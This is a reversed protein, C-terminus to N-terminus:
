IRKLTSKRRGWENFSKIYEQKVASMKNVVSDKTGNGQVLLPKGNFTKNRIDVYRQNSIKGGDHKVHVNYPPLKKGSEKQSNAASYFYREGSHRRNYKGCNNKTPLKTNEWKSIICVSDQEVSLM